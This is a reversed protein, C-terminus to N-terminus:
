MDELWQTRKSADRHWNHPRHIQEYMAAATGLPGGGLPGNYKPEDLAKAKPIMHAPVKVWKRQCKKVPKFYDFEKKFPVLSENLPVASCKFYHEQTIHLNVVRFESEPSRQQHFDVTLGARRRQALKENRTKYCFSALHLWGTDHGQRRGKTKRTRYQVAWLRCNKYHGVIKIM